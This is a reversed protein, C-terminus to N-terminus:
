TGVGLLQFNGAAPPPAATVLEWCGVDGTTNQPRTTGVIDKAPLGTATAIDLLASGTVLKYDHGSNTVVKFTATTFAVNLTNNSGAMSAQDTANFSCGATKTGGIPTTFGFIACNRINPANYQTNIGTGGATFNSPRVVTCNEITGVNPDSDALLAPVTATSTMVVLINTFTGNKLGVLGHGGQVNTGGGECILSDAVLGANGAGNMALVDRSNANTTELQLNTVTVFPNAVSLTVSNGYAGTNKWGVGNTVNYALANTQANANDRFSQGAGTTLTIFNSSSTTFGTINTQTSTSFESDNYMDGEWGGTPTSPIAAIWLPVTAYDRATTGITKVTTM